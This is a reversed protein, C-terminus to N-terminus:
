LKGETGHGNWKLKLSYMSKGLTMKESYKPYKHKGIIEIYYKNGRSRNHFLLSGDERYNFEKELQKDHTEADTLSQVEDQLCILNTWTWNWTVITVTKM